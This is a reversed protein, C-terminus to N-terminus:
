RDTRAVWYSGDVARPRLPHKGFARMLWGTPTLVVFYVVAMFIPTTVKSLVLGLRMWGRYIPGLTAPAVLGLLVLAAGFSGLVLPTLDHGRWRSILAFLLAVGGVTVGFKRAEAPTLRAPIGTALRGGGAMRAAGTERALVSLTGARRDGHAHL